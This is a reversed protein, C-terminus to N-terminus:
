SFGQRRENSSPIRLEERYKAVTRRAIRLGDDSLIQVIAADSLPRRADEEGVVKKIREKVTLSSVDQGQTSSISSHFFFKMEFLGRPTHMYKHNVVRSVTSEHMGIDDAVDKLILPRLHEYGLDLFGQQHKVISKAVKYITRQREELSKILRFASRFKERVYERTERTVDTNNRDIMRRYFPSIRLRPLGEENLVITYGKDVKLVYVDPIVYNNSGANYKKGPKPDLHRITDVYHMVEELSCGLEHALDKFRRGQLLVMHEKVMTEAPTGEMDHFSLQILLCEKLDRAGVGPPDFEQVFHLAHEVDELSWPGMAAIDELAVRLYGDEDLNGVIARAIEKQGAPVISMDLQWLLHDSLSQPKSLINELPPTEIEEAPAQPRYSLDMYDQFYSEYDIEDFSDREPEKDPVEADAAAAGEAVQGDEGEPKDAETAGEQLEELLPNETLEQTVEEQLELKTMQLLKIAQQLSPTMILKQTMRLNLKQELAM